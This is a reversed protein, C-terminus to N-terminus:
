IYWHFIFILRKDSASGTLQFHPRPLWDVTGFIEPEDLESRYDLETKLWLGRVPKIGLSGYGRDGLPTMQYEGMAAFRNTGLFLTWATLRDITEGGDQTIAAYSYTVQIGRALFLSARIVDGDGYSGTRVRPRNDGVFRTETRGYARTYIIEFYDSLLSVEANLSERGQGFTEKIAKTHDPINLGFSPLFRGGRFRLPGMDILTSYNRCEASDRFAYYGCSLILSINKAPDLSISVERQMPFRATVIVLDDSYRYSLLRVNSHLGLPALTLYGYFAEGEGKRSWTSIEEAVGKGYATTPGGGSTSYHCARCSDYSSMMEPFADAAGSLLLLVMSLAKIVLDRM